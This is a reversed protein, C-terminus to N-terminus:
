GPAVAVVKIGALEELSAMCRVFHSLAAKSAAYLPLVTSAKLAVISSEHLIVGPKQARRLRRVAIRTLKVPHVINVDFLKYHSPEDQDNWFGASSAEYIGAGAVVIDPAGGLKTTFVDFLHDLENWHTVDTKQFFVKPGNDEAISKLWDEAENHLRIDGIM